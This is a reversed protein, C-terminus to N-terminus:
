LKNNFNAASTSDMIFINLLNYLFGGICFYTKKFTNIFAFFDHQPRSFNLVSFWESTAFLFFYGFCESNVFIQALYDATSVALCLAKDDKLFTIEERLFVIDKSHQHAM